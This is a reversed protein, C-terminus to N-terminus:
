PHGTASFRSFCALSYEIGHSMHRTRRRACRCRMCSAPHLIGGEAASVGQLLRLCMRGKDTTSTRCPVEVMNLQCEKRINQDNSDRVTMADLLKLRELDAAAATAADAVNDRLEGDEEHTAVTRRMTDPRAAAEAGGARPEDAAAAAAATGAGPV